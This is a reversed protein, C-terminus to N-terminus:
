PSDSMVSHIFLLLSKASMIQLSKEWETLKVKKIKNKFDSEQNQQKFTKIKLFDM